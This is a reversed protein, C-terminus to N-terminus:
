WPWVSRRVRGGRWSGLAFSTPPRAGAQAAPSTEHSRFRRADRPLLNLPLRPDAAPCPGPLPFAVPGRTQPLLGREVRVGSDLYLVCLRCSRFVCAGYLTHVLAELRLTGALWARVGRAPLGQGQAQGAPSCGPRDGCLEALVQRPRGPSVAEDPGWQGM